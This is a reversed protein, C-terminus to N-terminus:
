IRTKITDHPLINPLRRHLSRIRRGQVLTLPLLLDVVLIGIITDNLAM